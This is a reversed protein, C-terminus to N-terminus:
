PAGAGTVVTLMARTSPPPPVVSVAPVEPPDEAGARVSSVPARVSSPSVPVGAGREGESAPDTASRAWRVASFARSRARPAASRTDAAARGAGGVGVRVASAPGGAAAREAAASTRGAEAAVRRSVTTLADDATTGADRLATDADRAHRQAEVRLRVTEEHRARVAAEDDSAARHADTDAAAERVAQGARDLAAATGRAAEAALRAADRAAGAARATDERARAAQEAATVAEATGTATDTATRAAVSVREAAGRALNLANEATRHAREAVSGAESPSLPAPSETGGDETRARTDETRAPASSGDSTGATDTTGEGGDVRAMNVTTAPAPAGYPSPGRDAPDQMAYRVYDTTLRGGPLWLRARVPDNRDRLHRGIGRALTRADQVREPPLAGADVPRKRDYPDSTVYVLAQALTRAERVSRNEAAPGGVPGLLRWFEAGLARARPADGAELASTLEPLRNLVSAARADARPDTGPAAPVTRAEGPTDPGSKVPGDPGAPRRVGPADPDASQTPVPAGGTTGPATAAAPPADATRPAPTRGSETVGAAPAASLADRVYQTTLLGGPLWLRARVPDNRDRRNREIGALLTAADEARDAPFTGGDAPARRDAPDSLTFVLGLALTRARRVSPNQGDGDGSRPSLLGQIDASVARARALDGEGLHRRAEAVLDAARAARADAPDAARVAEGTAPEGGTESRVAPAADGGRDRAADRETGPGHTTDADRTDRAADRETGPGQATDADGTDRAAPRDASPDATGSPPAQPATSGAAPPRQDAPPSPRASPAPGAAPASPTPTRGAPGGM